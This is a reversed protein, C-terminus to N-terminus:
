DFSYILSTALCVQDLPFNYLLQKPQNSFLVEFKTRAWSICDEFSTPRDDVLSNKLRELTEMKTNQQENLEAMFTPEELYRNVDSPAHFFEGEFWDRAWQLTHEIANPFNKLTCIPISKEPPDRSAGYNETKHPVVIQTNGKTGLTGSEFMPLGYFLCRQDM